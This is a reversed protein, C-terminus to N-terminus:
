RTIILLTSIGFDADRRQVFGLSRRVLISQDDNAAWRCFLFACKPCGPLSCSPLIFLVAAMSATGLSTCRSVPTVGSDLFSVMPCRARPESFVRCFLVFHLSVFLVYEQKFHRCHM